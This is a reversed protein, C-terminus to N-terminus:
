AKYENLWERAMTKIKIIDYKDYSALVLNLINKVKNYKEISPLEKKYSPYLEHL